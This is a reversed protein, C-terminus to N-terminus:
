ASFHEKFSHKQSEPLRPYLIGVWAPLLFFAAVIGVFLGTATRSLFTNKFIGAFDVGVDLLMPLAGIALWIRPPITVEGVNRCFPYLGLGFVFGCYIGTCRSCVALPFGWLSFSRESIQHCIGSLGRYLNIALGMHGTAMLWPPLVIVALWVVAILMLLSYMLWTKQPNLM